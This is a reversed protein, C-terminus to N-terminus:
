LDKGAKFKAKMSPPASSGGILRFGVLRNVILGATRVAADVAQRATLVGLGEISRLVTLATNRQMEFMQSARDATVAGRAYLQQVDELTQALKRLEPEAVLRITSWRGGIAGRVGDIMSKTIAHVDLNM